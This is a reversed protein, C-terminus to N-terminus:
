EYRVAIRGLADEAIEPTTAAVAAVEEGAFLVRRARGSEGRPKGSDVPNGAEDTEGLAAFYDAIEFTVVAKVGALKTAPSADISLIRAHPHPSRLIRAHLMGPLSIDHTYRAQGTVKAAGDLRPTDRGVVDLRAGANWVPPESEPVLVVAEETRGPRGIKIRRSESM